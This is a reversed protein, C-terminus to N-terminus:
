LLELISFSFDDVACDRREKSEPLGLLLEAALLLWAALTAKGPRGVGDPADPDLLRDPAPRPLAVGHALADEEVFWDDVDFGTDLLGVGGVELGSDLAVLPPAV